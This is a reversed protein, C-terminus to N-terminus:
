IPSLCLFYFNRNIKTILCRKRPLSKSLSQKVSNKALESDFDHNKRKRLKIDVDHFRNKDAIKSTKGCKDTKVQTSQLGLM